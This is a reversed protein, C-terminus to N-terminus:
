WAACGACRSGRVGCTAKRGELQAGPCTHRPRRRKPLVRFGAIGGQGARTPAACLGAHDHLVGAGDRGRGRGQANVPMESFQQLAPKTGPPRQCQDRQGAGRQPDLRAIWAVRRQDPRAPHLFTLRTVFDAAGSRDLAVMFHALAFLAVSFIAPYFWYSAKIAFGASRLRAFM